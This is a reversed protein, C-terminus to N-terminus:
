LFTSNMALMELFASDARSNVNCLIPNEIKVYHVNSFM